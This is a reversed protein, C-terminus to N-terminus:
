ISQTKCTHGQKTMQKYVSEQQKEDDCYVVVLHVLDSVEGDPQSGEEKKKVVIDPEDQLGENFEFKGSFLSDDIDLSDFGALDSMESNFLEEDYDVEFNSIENDELRALRVEEPSLDTRVIVPLKDMGVHKGVLRRGHGKIIVGEGDVVIPVDWGRSKIIKSLAEIQEQSHNKANGEYPIIDEVHWLEIKLSEIQKRLSNDDKM